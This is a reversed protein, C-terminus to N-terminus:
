QKLPEPKGRTASGPRAVVGKLSLLYELVARAPMQPTFGFEQPLYGLRSRAQDPNRILDIDELSVSGSTPELLTALIKM